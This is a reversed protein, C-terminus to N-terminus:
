HKFVVTYNAIELVGIKIIEPVGIIPEVSIDALLLTMKVVNTISVVM